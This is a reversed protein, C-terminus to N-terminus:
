ATANVLSGSSISTMFGDLSSQATTMDGSNLASGIRSLLSSVSPSGSSGSVSSASDILASNASDLLSTLSGYASQAGTLDGSRISSFLGIVDQGLDSISSNGDSGTSLTSSPATFLASITTSDPAANIELASLVSQAGSINDNSLASSVSSLFAGLPSNPDITSPSLKQAQALYSQADSTDGSKISSMLGSVATDFGNLGVRSSNAPSPASSASVEAFLTSSQIGSISM